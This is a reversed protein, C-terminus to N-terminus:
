NIQYELTQPPYCLVSKACGQYQIKIKEKKEKKIEINVFDHFIELKENFYSDYKIDPNELITFNISNNNKDFIKFKNKYLYYEPKILWTIKVNEKNNELFVQFADEVKLFDDEKKFPFSFSNSIYFCLSIILIIKKM